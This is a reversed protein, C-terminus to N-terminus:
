HVLEEKPIEALRTGCGGQDKPCTLRHRPTHYQDPTLALRKQCIPNPCKVIIDAKQAEDKTLPKTQEKHSEKDWRANREKYDQYVRRTPEKYNGPHSKFEEHWELGEPGILYATNDPFPSFAIDLAQVQFWQKFRSVLPRMFRHIVQKESAFAYFDPTSGLVIPNGSRALLMWGPYDPHLMATAVGGRIKNMEKITAKTIGHKDVMARLIDSDTEATRELELNKFLEDDNHIVGNHIVAAKGCYLPHNNKNFRPLGKTAARTHMVAQTIDETLFEELFEQYQQSKTFQWPTLDNKLVYVKGANDQLAIGAADNGRHELGTLALRIMSETIPKEGYKIVGAIGCM